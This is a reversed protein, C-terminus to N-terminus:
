RYEQTIAASTRVDIREVEARERISEFYPLAEDMGIGLNQLQKAVDLFPETELIRAERSDLQKTKEDLKAKWGELKQKRRDILFLEHKRQCKEHKIQELIRSWAFGYYDWARREIDFRDEIFKPERPYIKKPPNSEVTEAKSTSDKSGKTTTIPQGVGSYRPTTSTPSLGM